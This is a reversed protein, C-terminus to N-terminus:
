IIHISLVIYLFQRSSSTKKPAPDQSPLISWKFGIGYGCFEILKESSPCPKNCRFWFTFRSFVTLEIWRGQAQVVNSSDSISLGSSAECPWLLEWCPRTTVQSQWWLRKVTWSHRKGVSWESTPSRGTPMSLPGCRAIVAINRWPAWHGPGNPPLKRTPALQSCPMAKTKSPLPQLKPLLRWHIQHIWLQSPCKAQLSKGALNPPCFRRLNCRMCPSETRGWYGAMHPSVLRRARTLSGRSCASNTMRLSRRRTGSGARQSMFGTWMMLAPVQSLFRLVPPLHKQLWPFSTWISPVADM